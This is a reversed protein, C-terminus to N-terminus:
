DVWGETFEGSPIDYILFLCVKGEYYMFEDIFTFWILDTTKTSRSSLM